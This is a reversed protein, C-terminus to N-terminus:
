FLSPGAHLRKSRTWFILAEVDGESAGYRHLAESASLMEFIGVDSARMADLYAGANATRVGDIFAAIMPCHPLGGGSSAMARRGSSRRSYICLATSGDPSNFNGAEVALHLRSRMLDLLLIGRNMGLEDAVVVLSARKQSPNKQASAPGALLFHLALPLFLMSIRRVFSM